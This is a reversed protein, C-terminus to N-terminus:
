GWRALLSSGPETHLGSAPHCFDEQVRTARRGLAGPLKDMAFVQPASAAVRPMRLAHGTLPGASVRGSSWPGSPEFGGPYGARDRGGGNVPWCPLM